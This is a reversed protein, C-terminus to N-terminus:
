ERNSVMSDVCGRLASADSTATLPGTYTTTTAMALGSTLAALAITTFQM